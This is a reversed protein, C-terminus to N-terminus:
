FKKIEELTRGKTEPIWGLVFVFSLLSAAAYIWFMNAPGIAPNENMMPFTQTIIYDCSWMVFTAVSM